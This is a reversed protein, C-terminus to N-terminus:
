FRGDLARVRRRPNRLAEDCGRLRSTWNPGDLGMAFADTALSEMPRRTGAGYSGVILLRPLVSLAATAPASRRTRRARTRRAGALSRRIRAGGSRGGAPGVRAPRRALARRRRRDAELRPVRDRRRGGGGGDRARVVVGRPRARD